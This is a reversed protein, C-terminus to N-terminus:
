SESPRRVSHSRSLNHPPPTPQISTPTKFRLARLIRHRLRGSKLQQRKADAEHEDTIVLADYGIRWHKIEKAVSFGADLAHASPSQAWASSRLRIEMTGFHGVTV